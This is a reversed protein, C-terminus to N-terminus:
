SYENKLLDRLQEAAELECLFDETTWQASNSKNSTGGEVLYLVVKWGDSELDSIYTDISNTIQGYLTTNIFIGFLRGEGVTDNVVNQNNNDPLLPTRYLRQQNFALRINEGDGAACPVIILLCVLIFVYRQM